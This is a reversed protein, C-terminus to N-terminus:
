FILWFFFFSYFNFFFITFNFLWTCKMFHSFDVKQMTQRFTSLSAFSVSPPLGNWVNVIRKAFFNQRINNVSRSKFMNIQVDLWLRGLRRRPRRRSHTPRVQWDNRQRKKRRVKRGRSSDSDVLLRSIHNNFHVRMNRWLTDISLLKM